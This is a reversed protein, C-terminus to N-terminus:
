ICPGKDVDAQHEFNNQSALMCDKHFTNCLDFPLFEQLHPVCRM